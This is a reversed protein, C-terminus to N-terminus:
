FLKPKSKTILHTLVIDEKKKKIDSSKHSNEAGTVIEVFRIGSDDYKCRVYKISMTKSILYADFEYENASSAIEDSYKDSDVYALYYILSDTASVYKLKNNILYKSSITRNNPIKKLDSQFDM